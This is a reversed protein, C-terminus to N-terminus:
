KEELKYPRVHQEPALTEPRRDTTASAVRAGRSKHRAKIEEPTLTDAAPAAGGHSLFGRSRMPTKAGISKMPKRGEEAM